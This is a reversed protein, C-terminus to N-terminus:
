PKYKSPCGSNQCPTGIPWYNYCYPCKWTRQYECKAGSRIISAETTFLGTEDRFMSNCEVWENHGLHIRFRDNSTDMEKSDIYLKEPFTFASLSCAILLLSLIKKMSNGKNKEHQAFEYVWMM